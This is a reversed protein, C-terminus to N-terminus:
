LGPLRLACPLQSYLPNRQYKISWAMEKGIWPRFTFEHILRERLAAIARGSARTAPTDARASALAPLDERAFQRLM